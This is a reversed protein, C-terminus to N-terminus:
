GEPEELYVPNGSLKSFSFFTLKRHSDIQKTM